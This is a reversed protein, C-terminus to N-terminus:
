YPNENLKGILSDMSEQSTTILLKNNLLLYNLSVCRAPLDMYRITSSAIFRGQFQAQSFGLIMKKDLFLPELDNEM